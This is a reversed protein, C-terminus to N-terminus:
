RGGNRRRVLVAAMLLPSLVIFWLPALALPRPERKLVTRKAKNHIIPQVDEHESIWISEVDQQSVQEVLSKMLQINPQIDELEAIRASVAFVTQVDVNDGNVARVQYVGQQSPTMVIQGEGNQDTVVSHSQKEGNPETVIVDLTQKSTPLYQTDRTRFTLILEEGMLANERSPQIVARADDPDAILWRLANKWFRLYAQNGEGELAESYSWRWSSDVNLAMVRGKEVERVSLISLPKGADDKATPHQLLTAADSKVSAIRNYGDMSPLQTWAFQSEETTSSLQTLPHVKGSETLTPVFGEESSQELTGLNVPLIDEIATNGYEGLDFSRDGGIMVFGGGGRVYQAINGLLEESQYTFFPQYNFNQFIVLDFTELEETFLKEYPFAILSLEDSSWNSSLDDHTRLIFFSILDVSPDEKLFLRLFKQDYSPSGCVQLVRVEDRVVKIVVPFYNNSPVVDRADVPIEVDWAFRGVELPRIMFTAKGSGTSDLSVTKENVVNNSKRLKVTLTENPTGRVHATVEFNLRQFAFGGTDVKVISEDYIPSQEHMQIVSLPGPLVPLSGMSDELVSRDIGDTILIVGQLDQGLYRDYVSRLGQALDTQHGLNVVSPVSQTLSGDFYWVEVDGTVDKQLRRVIDQARDFRSNGNSEVSMSASADVLVVTKGDAPTGVESILTPEANMSVLVVGIISWLLMELGVKPMGRRGRWLGLLSLAVLAIGLFVKWTPSAWELAHVTEINVGLLWEM